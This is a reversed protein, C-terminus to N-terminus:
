LPASVAVSAASRAVKKDMFETCTQHPYPCWHKDILSNATPYECHLASGQHLQPFFVFTGQAIELSTALNTAGGKCATSSVKLRM